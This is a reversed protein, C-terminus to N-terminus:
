GCLHPLDALGCRSTLLEIMGSLSSKFGLCGFLGWMNQKVYFYTSSLLYLHEFIHTSVEAAINVNSHNMNDQWRSGESANAWCKVCVLKLCVRAKLREASTLLLDCDVRSVFLLRGKWCGGKKSEVVVYVRVCKERSCWKVLSYTFAVMKNMKIFATNEPLSGVARLAEIILDVYFPSHWLANALSSHM